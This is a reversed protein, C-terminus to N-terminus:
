QLVVSSRRSPSVYGCRTLAEETIRELGMRVSWKAADRVLDAAEGITGESLGFIKEALPDNGLDSKKPLPLLGDFTALFQRYESPEDPNEGELTWKPLGVVQFRNAIQPDSTIANFAERTGLGVIPIMLENGLLKIVRLFNRQKQPPANLLNQFEDIMLMQIGCDRLARIVTLEKMDSREKQGYKYVPLAELIANYFRGEEAATAEIKLIPVVSVSALHLRAQHRRLFRMALSTKGNNTEAVILINRTRHSPPESLRDELLQLIEEGRRYKFWVDKTRSIKELKQQM